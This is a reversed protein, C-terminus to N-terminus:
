STHDKTTNPTIISDAPVNRYAARRTPDAVDRGDNLVVVPGYVLQSGDPETRILRYLLDRWGRGGVNPPKRDLAVIM